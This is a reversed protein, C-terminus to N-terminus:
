VTLRSSSLPLRCIIWSSELEPVPDHAVGMGMTGLRSATKPTGVSGFWFVKNATAVSVV